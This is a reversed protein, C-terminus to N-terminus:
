PRSPYLTRLHRVDAESLWAAKALSRRDPVQKRLAKFNQLNMSGGEAMVDRPDTSHSLGVAHGIEHLAVFYVIVNRLMPDQKAAQEFARGMGHPDPRLFIHASRRYVSLLRETQGVQQTRVWPLWYIRITSQGEDTSPTFRIGGESAAEWAALAWRVFDEDGAVYKAEKLGNAIYYHISGDSGALLPLLAEQPATAGVRVLLAMVAGAILRAM